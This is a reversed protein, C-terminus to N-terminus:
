GSYQAYIVQIDFKDKLSNSVLNNVILERYLRSMMIRSIRERQFRMFTEIAPVLM